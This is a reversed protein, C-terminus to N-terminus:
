LVVYVQEPMRVQNAGGDFSDPLFHLQRVVKVKAPLEVIRLLRHTELGFVHLHRSKGGGVLVRGDRCFTRLVLSSLFQLM